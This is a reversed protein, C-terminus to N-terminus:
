TVMSHLPEQHPRYHPIRRRVLGNLCKYLEVAKFRSFKVSLSEKKKRTSPLFTSWGSRPDVNWVPLFLVGRGDTSRISAAMEGTHVDAADSPPRGVLVKRSRRWWLIFSLHGAPGGGAASETM